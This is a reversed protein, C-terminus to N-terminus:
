IGFTTPASSGSLSLHSGPSQLGQGHHGLPFWPRLDENRLIVGARQLMDEIGVPLMNLRAAGPSEGIAIHTSQGIVEAIKALRPDAAIIRADLESLVKLVDTELDDPIRVGKLLRGWNGSKATFEDDADRLAGLWFLPLYGFFGTLNTARQAKGTMPQGAEDLFEWVPDFAEKEASWPCSVRLSLINRGDPLVALIDELAAVMDADWAKMGPEEMVIDITVPPSGKPDDGDKARHVDHETFGTGRQGWRRTLAIRVADLIASKGANNPGVFVTTEGLNLDLSHISRFNQIRLRTIKM